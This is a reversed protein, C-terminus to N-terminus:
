HFLVIDVVHTTELLVVSSTDMSLIGIAEIVFVLQGLYSACLNGQRVNYIALWRKDTTM